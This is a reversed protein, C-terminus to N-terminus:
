LMHYKYIYKMLRSFYEFELPDRVIYIPFLHSYLDDYEVFRDRESALYSFVARYFDRIISSSYHRGCRFNFLEIVQILEVKRM